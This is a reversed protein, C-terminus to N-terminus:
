DWREGLIRVFGRVKSVEIYSAKDMAHHLFLYGPFMPARSVRPLGGRRCWVHIMPLFAEFGRAILQDFVIQECHSRTWFVHWRLGVPGANGELDDTRWSSLNTAAQAEQPM